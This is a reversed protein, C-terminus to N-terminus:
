GRKAGVGPLFEHYFWSLALLTLAIVLLSVFLLIVGLVIVAKSKVHKYLFPTRLMFSLSITIAILLLLAFDLCDLFAKPNCFFIYTQNILTVVFKIMWLLTLVSFGRMPKLSSESLLIKTHVILIPITAGLLVIARIKAHLGLSFGALFMILGLMYVASLYCIKKDTM